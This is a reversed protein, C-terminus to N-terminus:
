VRASLRRRRLSRRLTRKTKKSPSGSNPSPRHPLPIKSPPTTTPGKPKRQGSGPPSNAPRKAGSAGDLQSGSVGDWVSSGYSSGPSSGPPTKVPRPIRSIPPSKPPPSNPRHPPASYPRSPPPSNPRNPPSAPRASPPRRGNPDPRPSNKGFKAPDAEDFNVGLAYSVAACDECLKWPKGGAKRVNDLKLGSAGWAVIMSGAPKGTVPDGYNFGARINPRFSSERYYFAGDEADGDGIKQRWKAWLPALADGGEKDIMDLYKGRLITSLFIKHLKHDYFAAVVLNGPGTFPQPQTKVWNFARSAEGYLRRLDM